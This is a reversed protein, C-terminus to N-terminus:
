EEQEHSLSELRVVKKELSSVRRNVSQVLLELQDQVYNMKRKLGDTGEDPDKNRTYTTYAM